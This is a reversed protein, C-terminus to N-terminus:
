RIRWSDEEREHLIPPRCLTGMLLKFSTWESDTWHHKHSELAGHLEILSDVLVQQFAIAECSCESEPAKCEPKHMQVFTM